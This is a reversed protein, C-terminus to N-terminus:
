IKILFSINIPLKRKNCLQCEFPRDNLHIKTHNNMNYKNRFEMKCYPCPYTELINEHLKKHNVLNQSRAFSKNCGEFDCKHPRNGLHSNFHTSLDYKRKFTKGCYDQLQIKLNIDSYRVLVLKNKYSSVCELQKLKKHVMSEHVMCNAQSGFIKGCFSCSSRSVM